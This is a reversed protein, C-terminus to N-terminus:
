RKLLNISALLYARRKEKWITMASMISMLGYVAARCFMVAALASRVFLVSMRGHFKATYWLYSRMSNDLAKGGIWVKGGGEYHTVDVAPSYAVRYGINRV